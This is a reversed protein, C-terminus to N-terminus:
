NQKENETMLLKIASLDKATHLVLTVFIDNKNIYYLTAYSYTLIYKYRTKQKVKNQLNLGREPFDIISLIDSYIKAIVKKAMAEDDKAIYERISLDDYVKPNIHLNKM